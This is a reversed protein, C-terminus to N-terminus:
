SSIFYLNQKSVQDAIWEELSLSRYKMCAQGVKSVIQPTVYCTVTKLFGELKEVSDHRIFLEIMCEYHEPRPMVLYKEIMSDFYHRGMDVDGERVCALLIAQFTVHDPYIGEKMMRDFMKLTKEGRRNYVCGLLISNWLILDRRTSHEFVRFAYDLLRCKSYMDVLSGITILDMKYGNRVMFGHIEKGQHLSSINGCAVFLIGLTFENPFTETEELLKRFIGLAEESIKHSVYYNLLTNWSVIDRFRGMERFCARANRINGCKSYMYLLGNGVVLDSSFCHRYVAAHAQKGMEVDSIGASINLILGFTVKDIDETGVRMIRLFELAEEWLFLRTYGALMANWSIINRAPMKNFLDRAKSIEGNLAYGSVMSTWHILDKSCTIQDFVKRANDIDKCKAYMDILSTSIEQNFDLNIKVIFCHIQTGEKLSSIRSCGVLANSVTSFLPQITFRIMNFFMYLAERSQGVSLYRKIIVNWSVDNPTHIEDFMKRADIMVNCKGYVDVLSSELIVNGTLGLKVMLCHIQRSLQLEFTNACSGLASAFTIENGCIGLRNMEIFLSLAEDSYRGRAYATIIANWSGGDREPMEDFLERADIICGCKGYTEIARNLLFVPPTTPSFTVLHSEVKRAEVIARNSACLHFLHAYLSFTFPVPSNFLISVAKPLRGARIEGLIIHTIADSNTPLSKQKRIRSHLFRNFISAANVGM